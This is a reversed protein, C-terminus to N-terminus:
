NGRALDTEILQGNARMQAMEAQTVVYSNGCVIRLSDSGCTATGTGWTGPYYPTGPWITTPTPIITVGPALPALPPQGLMGIASGCAPCHNWTAQLHEGCNACYKWKM